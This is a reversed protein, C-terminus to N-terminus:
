NERPECLGNVRAPAPSADTCGIDPPNKMRRTAPSAVTTAEAAKLQDTAAASVGRKSTSAAQGFVSGFL